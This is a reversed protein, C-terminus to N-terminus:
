KNCQNGNASNDDLGVVEVASSNNASKLLRINTRRNNKNEGSPNICFNVEQPRFVESTLIGSIIRPTEGESGAAMNTIRNVESNVQIPSNDAKVFTRVTGSKPDRLVLIVGTFEQPPDSNNTTQIRAGWGPEYVDIMGAPKYPSSSNERFFVDAGLKQLLELTTGSGIDSSSVAKGVVDYVYIIQKGSDNKEGFSIMKGYIAMGHRGNSISQVNTVEDYINRLFNTFSQVVDNYRQQYISNQVGVTVSLFLVGTVALFLSVEILTFGFRKKRM